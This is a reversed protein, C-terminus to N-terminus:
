PADGAKRRQRRERLKRLAANTEAATLPEGTRFVWVGREKQLPPTVRRLRLTVQEGEVTLDLSDGPALRLEERLAKPLVLRGAKDLIVTANM